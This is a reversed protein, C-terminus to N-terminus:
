LIEILVYQAMQGSTLTTLYDSLLTAVKCIDQSTGSAIAFIYYLFDHLWLTELTVGSIDWEMEM